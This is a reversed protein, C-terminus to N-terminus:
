GEKAKGQESSSCLLGALVTASRQYIPGYQSQILPRFHSEMEDQTSIIKPKSPDDIWITETYPKVSELLAAIWGYYGYVFDLVLERLPSNLTGRVKPSWIRNRLFADASSELIASSHQTSLKVTELLPSLALFEPLAFAMAHDSLNVGRLRPLSVNDLINSYLPIDRDWSRFTLTEVVEHICRLLGRIDVLVWESRSLHASPAHATHLSLSKVHAALSPNSSFMAEKNGRSFTRSPWWHEIKQTIHSFLLPDVLQSIRPHASRLVLVTRKCQGDEDGAKRVLKLYQKLVLELIENPMDLLKAMIFHQVSISQRDGRGTTTCSNALSLSRFLLPLDGESRHRDQDDVWVAALADCLTKM